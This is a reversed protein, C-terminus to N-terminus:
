AAQPAIVGFKAHLKRIAEALAAPDAAHERRLRVKEGRIYKRTSKSLRKKEM